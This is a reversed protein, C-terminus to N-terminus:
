CKTLRKSFYSVVRDINDSHEKFLVAGTGVDSADVSLKYQKFFRSNFFTSRQYPYIQNYFASKRLRKDM